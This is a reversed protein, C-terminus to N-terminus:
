FYWPMEKSILSWQSLFGVKDNCFLQIDEKQTSNKTWYKKDYYFAGKPLAKINVTFSWQLIISVSKM